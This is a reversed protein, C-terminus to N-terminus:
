AARHEAAEDCIQKVVPADGRRERAGFSGARDRLFHDGEALAVRQLRAAHGSGVDHQRGDRLFQEALDRGFEGIAGSAVGADDLGAMADAVIGLHGDELEDAIFELELFLLFLGLLFFCGFYFTLRGNGICVEAAREPLGSRAKQKDRNKPSHRAASRHTLRFSRRKGCNGRRTRVATPPVVGVSGWISRFRRDLGAAFRLGFGDSLLAPWWARLWSPM